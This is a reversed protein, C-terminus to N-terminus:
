RFLDRMDLGSQKLISKIVFPPLERNSHVPVTVWNRGDSMQYHSGSVRKVEFGRKMLLKVMKKGSTPPIKPM